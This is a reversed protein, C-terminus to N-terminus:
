YHMFRSTGEWQVAPVGTPVSFLCLKAVGAQVAQKREHRAEGCGLYMSLYEIYLYM